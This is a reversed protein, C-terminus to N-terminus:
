QTGYNVGSGMDKAIQNLDSYMFTGSGTQYFAIGSFAANNSGLLQFVPAGSDGGDIWAGVETACLIVVNYSPQESQDVCTRLVSGETWGSKRGVKDLTMGQVPSATNTVTFKWVGTLNLTISGANSSGAGVGNSTTQALKGHAINVGSDYGVFTVDSWRCQAYSPLCSGGTFTPPDYMEHGIQAGGQTYVTADTSFPTSSCHAATYFGETGVPVSHAINTYWVNAGLTCVSAGNNYEISLGGVTPRVSNQLTTAPKGPPVVEVAIASLLGLRTEADVVRRKADESTVAVYVDNEAEDVDFMVVDPTGAVANAIKVRVDYLTPFDYAAQRVIIDAPRTFPDSWRQGRSQVVDAFKLRAVSEFALDTLNVVLDGNRDFFYGGFGPLETALEM